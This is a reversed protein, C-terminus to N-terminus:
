VRFYILILNFTVADSLCIECSSLFQSCFIWSSCFFTPKWVKGWLGWCRHSHYMSTIETIFNAKNKLRKKLCISDSVHYRNSKRCESIIQKEAGCCLIVSLTRKTFHIDTRPATIKMNKRLEKMGLMWRSRPLCLVIDINLGPGFPHYYKYIMYNHFVAEVTRVNLHTWIILQSAFEVLLNCTLQMKGECLM